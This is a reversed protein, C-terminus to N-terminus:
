LQERVYAPIPECPAAVLDEGEFFWREFEDGQSRNHWGHGSRLDAPSWTRAAAARHRERCVDYDARHLHVLILEPDPPQARFRREVHFGKEWTLPTRALLRKDYDVARHWSGRQALVPRGPELPPESDPHHIVNFGTCRATLGELADVYAGLDAYRRPDAIVLEDAETFLVTDYSALLFRQFREVTSRLWAHDFSETRHVAIVNCRGDLGTTSGDTTGHDLVYIDRPEFSRAYHDLWIPLFVREDQAITFVARSRAGARPVHVETGALQLELEPLDFRGGAATLAVASVRISTGAAGTLDVEAEWGSREGHEVAPHAAEVDPRPLGHEAVATVVGDVLVLVAQLPGAGDLAWGSVRLPGRTVTEGGVPTEITAGVLTM